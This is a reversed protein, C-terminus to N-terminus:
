GFCLGCVTVCDSVNSPHRSICGDEEVAGGGKMAKVADMRATLHEIGVFSHREFSSTSNNKEGGGFVSMTSVSNKRMM